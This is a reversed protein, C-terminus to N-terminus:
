FFLAFCIYKRSCGSHGKLSMLRITNGYLEYRGVTTYCHSFNSDKKKLYNNKNQFLRFIEPFFFVIFVIYLFKKGVICKLFITSTNDM